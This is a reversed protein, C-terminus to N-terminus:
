GKLAKHIAIMLIEPTREFLDEILVREAMKHVDKGLPGINICPMSIEGIQRFPVSYFDGYLPMYNSIVQEVEQASNMSSYSLDSVGMYPTLEYTQGWKEQARANIASTIHTVKATYDPRDLYSVSPYFPPVLGVLVLPQNLESLTALKDLIAWTATATTMDGRRLSDIIDRTMEDYQVDFADGLSARLSKMYKDFAFVQTRWSRKRSSAGSVQYYRDASRNIQDTVEAASDTCINRLAHLVIEPRNSFNHSNLCGFASFPMSVDYILKSDRAMLWTPPPSMEGTVPQIETLDVNMESRRIIDGLIPLPNFGEASLSAHSLVGRVYVFPMIKGIGGGAFVAVDAENRFQPESDILLVYDLDFRTKLDAMLTAASRAGISLNEEDPVALLLVNGEFNPERSIEDLIAMQIAGGAKMDATGRGFIYEKSLLDDRAERDLINANKLLAQELRVPEFALPKLLGYDDIEVVDFHHLLVITKRGKGRILAWEVCRHFPDGKCAFSGFLDPNDQFYPMRSLYDHVYVSALNEATTGSQSNIRVYPFFIDEILKKRHPAM